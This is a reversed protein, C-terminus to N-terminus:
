EPEVSLFREVDLKGYGWRANWCPRTFSDQLTSKILRRKVEAWDLKDHRQFLLAVAGTVYPAAMSTGQLAAYPEHEMRLWPPMEAESAAASLPAILWQGPAAVEPKNCGDRSPGPSSFYSVDELHIADPKVNPQSEDASRWEDRTAYSGVTIASFATGPMGVLHSKREGSKFNGMERNVIWAHVSGVRVGARGQSRDEDVVLSWGALWQTQPVAIVTFTTQHDGSYAARQHNAQVLFVQRNVEATGAPPAEFIEGNPARLRVILDDERQHWV